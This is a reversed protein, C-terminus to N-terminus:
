KKKLRELKSEIEVVLDTSKKYLANKQPIEKLFKLCDSYTKEYERNQNRLISIENLLLNVKTILKSISPNSEKQNELKTNM